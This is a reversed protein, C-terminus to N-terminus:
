RAPGPVLMRLASPLVSVTRPLPGLREGDGYAVIGPSSLTVERVRHREFEPLTVHTGKYLRRGSKLVDGFGFDGLAVVDFVGDDPQAKGAAVLRALHEAPSEDSTTLVPVVRPGAPPPLAAELRRLRDKLAM